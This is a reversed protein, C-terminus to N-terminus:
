NFKKKEVYIWKNYDTNKLSKKEWCVNMYFHQSWKHGRESWWHDDNLFIKDSAYLESKDLKIHLAYRRCGFRSVSQGSQLISIRWESSSWKVECNAITQLVDISSRTRISHDFLWRKYWGITFFAFMCCKYFWFLILLTIWILCLLNQKILIMALSWFIKIWKKKINKWYGENRVNM